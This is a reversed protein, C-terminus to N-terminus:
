SIARRDTENNIAAVLNSGQLRFEGGVTIQLSQATLGSSRTDYNFNSSNNGSASGQAGSGNDVTNQLSKAAFSGLAVLAVGAALALWPNMMIKKLAIGAMALGIMQKGVSVSLNALSKVILTGFDDMGASGSLMSGLFEGFGVATDSLTSKVTESLDLMSGNISKSMDDALMKAKTAISELKEVELKAKPVGLQKEPYMERLKAGSEGNLSSDKKRKEVNLKIIADAQEHIAKNVANYERSMAKLEQAEQQDIEFVKAKLEEVEQLESGMAKHQAAETAAIDARGKAIKKDQEFAAITLAKAKNLMVLKQEATYDDSKADARLEAAKARRQAQIVIAEREAKNLANTREQLAGAAKAESVLEESIGTVSAKFAAASGSLDGKFFKFIGEGFSSFRDILVRVVAGIESMVVKVLAAGERTSTFYAILSGLLVVFAGVGTAILAIKFINMAISGLGTAATAATQATALRSQATAVAMSAALVESEALALAEATTGATGQAITLAENATVLRIQALSLENTSLAILSQATKFANGGNAADVMASHLGNFALSVKSLSAGIASTNVGFMEALQNLKSSIDNKFTKTADAAKDIEQRYPKTDGSLLVKLNKTAM